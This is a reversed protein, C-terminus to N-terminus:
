KPFTIIVPETPTRPKRAKPVKLREKNVVFGSLGNSETVLRGLEQTINFPATADGLEGKLNIRYFFM